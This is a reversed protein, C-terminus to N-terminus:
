SVVLPPTTVSGQVLCSPSVYTQGPSVNRDDPNNPVVSTLSVTRTNPSAGMAITLAAGDAFPFASPSQAAFTFKAGATMVGADYSVLNKTGNLPGNPLHNNAYTIEAGYVSGTFGGFTVADWMLPAAVDVTHSYDTPTHATPVPLGPAVFVVSLAVPQGLQFSLSFAEAKANSLTHLRSGDSAVIALAATDDFGGTWTRKLFMDWFALALVETPKTRCQVRATFRTTRLGEAWHTGWSNGVPMPAVLNRADNMQWDYVPYPNGGITVYGHRGQAIPM